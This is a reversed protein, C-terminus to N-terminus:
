LLGGGGLRQFRLINEAAQAVASGQDATQMAEEAAGGFLYMLDQLTLKKRGLTQGGTEGLAGNMTNRKQECIAYIREEVTGLVKFRYVNVTKTQGIRHARDIAQEEVAPNWWVDALIVRNAVTLNLGTGGAHLSILFVNKRKSEKFEELQKQRRSSSMSGDLRCTQHGGMQLHFEIIDLMSTWQSFILTKEYKDRLRTEEVEKLIMKVKTSHQSFAKFLKEKTSSTDRKEQSAVASPEKQVGTGSADGVKESPKDEAECTTSTANPNGRTAGRLGARRRTLEDQVWERFEAATLHLEKGSAGIMVCAHVEKRLDDGNIFVEVINPDGIPHPCCLCMRNRRISSCCEPCFLDGCALFSGERWPVERKCYHCSFLTTVLGKGKEPPQLWRGVRDRSGEDLMELLSYGGEVLEMAEELEDQTFITMFPSSDISSRKSKGQMRAYQILFPHSCAQRLRLLVLLVSSYNSALTGDVLFKNVTLISKEQVAKYVALEEKDAFATEKIDTMRPPLVILPKGNITDKKTRRLVVVGAIAQFQKFATNRVKDRSHELRKKWLVNWTEYNKVFRYRIFCFLSYIDDVSNQIPTGTLCWRKEADLSMAAAWADTSRNKIHQAEDLVVRYWKVRCLPGKARTPLPMKAKKLRAFDPHNKLVKPYENTLTAFTTIVVDCKQLARYDRERKPGHYICVSPEHEKKIRSIIEEKWQNIVSLPCIILTRWPMRSSSSSKLTSRVTRARLSTTSVSGSQQYHFFPDEIDESSDSSCDDDETRPKPPNTLFLGIMSLTKGLGQDDALIGGLCMEDDTAIVDDDVDKSPNERKKMWALARLQHAMLRVNMEPPNRAEETADATLANQKCLNRIRAPSMGERYGDTRSAGAIPSSEAGQESEGEFISSYPGEGKPSGDKHFSILDSRVVDGSPAHQLNVVPALTVPLSREVPVQVGPAPVTTAVLSPQTKLMRGYDLQQVGQLGPPFVISSNAAVSERPTAASTGRVSPNGNFESTARLGTDRGDTDTLNPMFGEMPSLRLSVPQESANASTYHAAERPKDEALKYMEAIKDWPMMLPVNAVAGAGANSALSQQAEIPRPSSLISNPGEIHDTSPLSGAADQPPDLPVLAQVGDQKIVIRHTKSLENEDDSDFVEFSGSARHRILNGEDGLVVGVPLASHVGSTALDDSNQAVSRREIPKINAVVEDDDLDIIENGPQAVVEPNSMRVSTTHVVGREDEEDDSILVVEMPSAPPSPIEDNELHSQVRGSPEQEQGDSAASNVHNPLYQQSPPLRTEVISLQEQVSPASALPPASAPSTPKRQETISSSLLQGGDSTITSPHSASNHQRSSKDGTQLLTQIMHSPPSPLNGQPSGSHELRNGIEGVEGLRSSFPAVETANDTEAASLTQNNSSTGHSETNQTTTAHPLNMAPITIAPIIDAKLNPATQTQPASGDIEQGALLQPNSHALSATIPLPHSKSTIQRPQRQAPRVQVRSPNLLPYAPNDEPIRLQTPHTGDVRGKKAAPADDQMTEPSHASSQFSISRKQTLFSVM